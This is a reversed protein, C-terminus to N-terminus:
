PKKGGKGVKPELYKLDAAQLYSLLAALNGDVFTNPDIDNVIPNRGSNAYKLREKNMAAFYRTPDDGLKVQNRTAQDVGYNDCYADWISKKQQDTFGNLSGVGRMSQLIQTMKAGTAEISGASAEGNLQGKYNYGPFYSKFDQKKQSKDDNYLRNFLASRLGDLQETYSRKDNASRDGFLIGKAVEPKSFNHRM